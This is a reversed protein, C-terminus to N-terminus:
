SLLIHSLFLMEIKTPWTNDKHPSDPPPVDAYANLQTLHDHALRALFSRAAIDVTSAQWFLVDSYQGEPLTIFREPRIM